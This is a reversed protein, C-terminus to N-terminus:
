HDQSRSGWKERHPRLQALEEPPYLAFTEDTFLVFLGCGREFEVKEVSLFDIADNM